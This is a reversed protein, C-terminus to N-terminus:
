NRQVNLEEGMKGGYKRLLSAIETHNREIEYDLLAQGTVDDKLNLNLGSTFGPALTSEIDEFPPEMM